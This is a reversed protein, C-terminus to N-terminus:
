KVEGKQFNVLLLKGNKLALDLVYTKEEEQMLQKKGQQIPLYLSLIGKVFVRVHFPDLKEVASDSLTWAFFIHNKQMEERDKKLGEKLSFIFSPDVWALLTEESEKQTHSSRHLLLHALFEGQKKAEELDLSLEPAEFFTISEKRLSVVTLALTSLLLLLCVVFLVNRQMVLISLSTEKVFTKM